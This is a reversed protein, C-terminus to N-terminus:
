GVEGGARLEAREGQGFGVVAGIDDPEGGGRAAVALVPDEVAGLAPDAQAGEGVDHGYPGAVVVAVDSGEDDVVAVVVRM